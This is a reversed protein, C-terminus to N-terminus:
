QIEAQLLQNKEIKVRNAQLGDNAISTLFEVKDGIKLQSFNSSCVNSDSFYLEKGDNGEIFGYGDDVFLRKIVGRDGVEHTKVEGRRRRAYSELKREAAKFADRIAVYVDEDLKHSIALEKGPVTLDISLCFLKGQHKHKQPITLVIRCSNIRQYFQTLKQAKKRLHDELALTSPMDRITIQVQQM